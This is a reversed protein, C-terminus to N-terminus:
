DFYPMLFSAATQEEDLNCRLLSDSDIGNPMLADYMLGTNIVSGITTTGQCQFMLALEEGRKNWEVIAKSCTSMSFGMNGMSVKAFSSIKTGLYGLGDFSYMIGMQIGACISLVFFIKMM